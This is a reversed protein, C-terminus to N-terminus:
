EGGPQRRAPLNEGMTRGPHPLVHVEGETGTELDMAYIREGNTSYCYRIGLREAYDKAQANGDTYYLDRKKAEVVALPRNRYFLVFDASLPKARRGGGLLRGKTINVETRIRSDTVEGWGAAKLAPDILDHRTQSENM